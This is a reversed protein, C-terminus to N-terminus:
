SFNILAFESDARIADEILMPPHTVLDEAPPTIFQGNSAVVGIGFRTDEPGVRLGHAMDSERVGDELMWRFAQPDEIRGVVLLKGMTFALAPDVNPQALLEQLRTGQAQLIGIHDWTNRRWGSAGEVGAFTDSLAVGEVGQRSPRWLAQRYNPHDSGMVPNLVSWLTREAARVPNKM